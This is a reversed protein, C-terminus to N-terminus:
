KPYHAWETTRASSGILMQISDKPWAIAYATARTHGEVLVYGAGGDEMAILEPFSRGARVAAAVALIRAVLREDGCRDINAAGDVARRTGGSLATWNPYNAYKLLALDAPELDVRRWVVDPPFGKFLAENPYGRCAGLMQARHANAATDSLDAQDILQARTAGLQALSARYCHGFRSADIEARVFALIM